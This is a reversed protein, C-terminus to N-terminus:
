GVPWSVRGVGGKGGEKTQWMWVANNKVMNNEVRIRRALWHGAGLGEKPLAVERLRSRPAFTGLSFQLAPNDACLVFTYTDGVVLEKERPGFVQVGERESIFDKKSLAAV